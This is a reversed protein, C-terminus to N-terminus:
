QDSHKSVQGIADPVHFRQNTRALRLYMEELPVRLSAFRTSVRILREYDENRQAVQTALGDLEICKDGCPVEQVYFLEMLRNSANILGKGDHEAKQSIEQMLSGSIQNIHQLLEIMNQQEKLNLGYQARRIELTSRNIDFITIVDDFDSRPPLQFSYSAPTLVADIRYLSGNYKRIPKGPKVKYTKGAATVSVIAGNIKSVILDNGALTKVPISETGLTAVKNPDTLTKGNPMGKTLDTSSGTQTPSDLKGSVIGALIFARLRESDQHGIEKLHDDSPMFVTFPGSMTLFSGLGAKEIIAKLLGKDQMNAYAELTNLRAPEILQGYSVLPLILYHHKKIDFLFQAVSYDDYGYFVPELQGKKVLHIGGSALFGYGTYIDKLLSAYTSITNSPLIGVRQLNISLDGGTVRTNMPPEVLVYQGHVTKCYFLAAGMTGDSYVFYFVKGLEIGMSRLKVRIDEINNGTNLLNIGETTPTNGPMPPRSISISEPSQAPSPTQDTKVGIKVGQDM